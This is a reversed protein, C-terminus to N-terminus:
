LISSNQSDQAYRTEVIVDIKYKIEEAFLSELLKTFNHVDLEHMAQFKQLVYRLSHFYNIKIYILFKQPSIM